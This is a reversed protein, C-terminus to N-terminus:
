AKALERRRASTQIAFQQVFGVGNQNFLQFEGFAVIQFTRGHEQKVFIWFAKDRTGKNLDAKETRLCIQDIMVFDMAIQESLRSLRNVQYAGFIQFRRNVIFAQLSDLSVRDGVFCEALGHEVRQNM